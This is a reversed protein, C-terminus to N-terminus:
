CSRGFLFRLPGRYAAQGGQCEALQAKLETIYAALMGMNVKSYEVSENNQDIWKSVAKGTLLDHYAKQAETLLTQIDTCDAAM